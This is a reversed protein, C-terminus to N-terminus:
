ELHGKVLAGKDDWLYFESREEKELAEMKAKQEPTCIPTIAQPVLSFMLSKERSGWFTFVAASGKQLVRFAEKIQNLPNSV